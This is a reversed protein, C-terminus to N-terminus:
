ATSTTSDLEFDIDLLNRRTKAKGKSFSLGDKLPPLQMKPSPEMQVTRIQPHSPIYAQSSGSLQGIHTHSRMTSSSNQSEAPAAIRPTRHIAKPTLLPASYRTENHVGTAEIPRVDELEHSDAEEERDSYSSSVSDFSLRAIITDRTSAAIPLSTLLSTLSISPHSAYRTHHSASASASRVHDHPLRSQSATKNVSSPPFFALQSAPVRRITETDSPRRIAQFEQANRIYFSPDMPNPIEEAPTITILNDAPIPKLRAAKDVPIYLEARLHISDSAWLQNARRLEAMSIGYKLAVGALSDGSNIEHVLVDKVEVSTDPISDAEVPPADVLTDVNLVRSLHPRTIGADNPESALGASRLPYISGSSTSIDFDTCSRTHKGFAISSSEDMTELSRRRFSLTDRQCREDENNRSAVSSEKEAYPDLTLLDLTNSAISSLRHGYDMSM